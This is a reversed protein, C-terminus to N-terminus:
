EERNLLVMTMLSEDTSACGECNQDGNRARTLVHLPHDLSPTWRCTACGLSSLIWHLNRHVERIGVHTFIYSCVKCPFVCDMDHKSRMHPILADLDRFGKLCEWCDLQKSTVESHVVVKHKRNKDCMIGDESSYGCPPCTFLLPRGDQILTSRVEEFSNIFRGAWFLKPDSCLHDGM